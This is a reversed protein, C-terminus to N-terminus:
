DNPDIVTQIYLDTYGKQALDMGFEIARIFNDANTTTYFSGKFNDHDWSLTQSEIQRDSNYARRCIIPYKKSM